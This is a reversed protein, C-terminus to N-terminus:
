PAGLSAVTVGAEVLARRVSAAIEVAGPGGDVGFVLELSHPAFSGDRDAERALHRVLDFELRRAAARM